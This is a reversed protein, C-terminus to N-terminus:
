QKDPNSLVDMKKNAHPGETTHKETKAADKLVKADKIAEAKADEKEAVKDNVGDNDKDESVEKKKFQRPAKVEVSAKRKEMRAMKYKVVEPIEALEVYVIGDIKKAKVKISNAPKKIGRFWIENNLNIDLKVKRLDRDRVKMHQVMFERLVRVAKKARRYQPAKLVGKKLPVTYVRELEIKSEVKTEKKPNKAAAPSSKKKETKTEKVEEKVETKKIEEAM